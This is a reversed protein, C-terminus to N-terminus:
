YSIRPPTDCLVPRCAHSAGSGQGVERALAHFGKTNFERMPVFQVIDRSAKKGDNNAIRVDDGDLEEMLTFDANGVGVSGARFIYSFFPLCAPLCFLIRWIDLTGISVGDVFFVGSWYRTTDFITAM